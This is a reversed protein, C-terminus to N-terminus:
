EKEYELREWIRAIKEAQIEQIKGRGMIYALQELMLLADALEEMANHNRGNVYRSLAQILEGMEEMAMLIQAHTGWKEFCADFLEERNM